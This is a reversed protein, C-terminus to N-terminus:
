RLCPRLPDGDDPCPTRPSSAPKSGHGGLLLPETRSPKLVPATAPTAAELEAVRAALTQSKRREAALLLESGRARAEAASLKAQSFQQERAQAPRLLGFYAFAASVLLTAAAASSLWSLTRYSRSREAERIRALALDHQRQQELELLRLQGEAEIRVREVTSRKMAELREQELHEREQELAQRRQRAEREQQGAVRRREALEGVRKLEDERRRQAERAERQVRERETELLSELSFLLSSERLEDM